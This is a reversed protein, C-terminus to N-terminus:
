VIETQNVVSVQFRTKHSKYFKDYIEIRFMYVGPILNEVSTRISKPSDFEVNKGNEREPGSVLSWQYNKIDGESHGGDLWGSTGEMNLRNNHCIKSTRAHFVKIQHKEDDLYLNFLYEGVGLGNVNTKM